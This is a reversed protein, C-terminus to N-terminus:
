AENIHARKMSWASLSAIKVSEAGNNFAFLHAGNGIALKPYVRATICAKGQGGFSEVISHDILTRLSLKEHLPDVDVFAGYSTKDIDKGLSSRSQDSCMLVVYRKGDKFVRFFIATQEKMDKSALVLLGFPGIGGKVSAGKKSCLLQPNVWSPNMVEAKELKSLDFSVEIDAQSATIGSVELVSGGKIEKNALNVQDGRLQEIEVIPWQVLQKGSSDLWLLRPIAQLGSWGKEVDDAVSSSENIWGWLIRRKKSDDFFTKSAYFKGYDYRLGSGNDVSGPDPSYQDKAPDYTGITYYEHKTDDLSVKLVHKVGPNIVSTDLGMKGNPSVPFFDPCEWMGTNDSSHLPHQSKTWHIFDKSRYLIAMGRRRRKSGIIVRWRGDAGRWGTTPDRFSSANIGNIPAMLPNQALKIWERLLPDSLNKPFALNQVQRNQPDIGTYLIAPKGGPLFTASGSWCGKIDFPESPYIAPDHRVWNVLDTSTSHAWVINGWVAGFPNYQYFLHYIGKYIMPGNPDNMWNQPPQFHYATRYPQHDVASTSQVSQLHMYIPHSAEAGRHLLLLVSCLGIYWIRSFAMTM